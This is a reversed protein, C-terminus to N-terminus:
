LKEAFCAHAVVGIERAVYVGKEDKERKKRGENYRSLRIPVQRGGRVLNVPRALTLTLSVSILSPLAARKKKKPLGHCHSGNIICRTLFM